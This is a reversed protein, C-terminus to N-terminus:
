TQPNGCTPGIKGLPRWHFKNLHQLPIKVSWIGKWDSMWCVPSAGIISATVTLPHYYSYLGHVNEYLCGVVLINIWMICKGTNNISFMLSMLMISAFTYHSYINQPQVDTSFIYMSKVGITAGQSHCSESNHSQGTVCGAISYIFGHDLLM